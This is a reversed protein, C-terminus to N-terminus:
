GRGGMGGATRIRSAAKNMLKQWGPENTSPEMGAAINQRIQDVLIVSNRMIMGFLAIVGLQAVFGMPANFLLLAGVVGIMGLPATLMVMLSKSVSQLQLMLLTLVAVIM